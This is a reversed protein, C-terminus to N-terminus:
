RAGVQRGRLSDLALMFEVALGDAVLFGADTLVWRSPTVLLLGREGLRMATAELREAAGADIGAAERRVRGADLGEAIRLGTMLYEVLARKADPGEFDTIAAFGAEDDALYTDLRAINKWRRGGAHASASPGAALWQEQRWYALNHRCEAGPRSFNSVEYRELGAGRITGLTHEFMATELEEPARAFEGRALRATMATAPEYTLAYCSMHETGLALAARLDRDWDELTQGPVAFILDVSQRSIGAERALAVAPGVNEPDHRRELTALHRADFSQAGLSVRNVGGAALVAFLEPTVTEPNCEVTFERQGAGMASLDFCAGLEGLLERWLAARLLSPTGGGVFISTLPRAGWGALARLEGRLRRVFAEQRDQTDVLSYFDCYHCKHYCFPVHIYLAAAVGAEVGELATGAHRVSASQALSIQRSPPVPACYGGAGNEGIM